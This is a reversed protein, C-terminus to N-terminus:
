AFQWSLVALQVVSSWIRCLTVCPYCLLQYRVLKCLAPGLRSKEKQNKKKQSFLFLVVVSSEYQVASVEDGVFPNLVAAQRQNYETNTRCRPRKDSQKQIGFKGFVQLTLKFQACPNNIDAYGYQKEGERSVM